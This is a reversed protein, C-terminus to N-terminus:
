IAARRSINEARVAAVTNKEPEVAQEGAFLMKIGTFVLFVGFVYLVWDFNAILAVGGGIMAGRMVLAGLIGWILVRQQFEPPVRFAAFILAIVLINDLSLSLEICTAPSSNRPRRADARM